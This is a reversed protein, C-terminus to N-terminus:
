IQLLTKYFEYHENITSPDAFLYHGISNIYNLIENFEFNPLRSDIEIFTSKVIASQPHQNALFFLLILNKLSTSKLITSKKFNTSENSQEKLNIKKNQNSLNISCRRITSNNLIRTTKRLNQIISISKFM